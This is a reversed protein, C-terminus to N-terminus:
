LYSNFEKLFIDLLNKQPIFTESWEDMKTIMDLSLEKKATGVEGKRCFELDDRKNPLKDNIVDMGKTVSKKMYEFSLRKEAEQLTREDPVEKELFKCLRVIVTRLDKKMMEFTMFFINSEHRMEYFELVHSWFPQFSVDGKMTKECFEELSGGLIGLGRLHHYASVTADKFDRAVYIIKLKNQWIGYPLLHAPLHSKILRPSKLARAIELSNYRNKNGPILESFELYPSRELLLNKSEFEEFNFDNIVLWAMEQMWTTGCKPSTVVFVDDNRVEFNLINEINESFYKTITCPRKSWDKNVPIQVTPKLYVDVMLPNSREKFWYNKESSM